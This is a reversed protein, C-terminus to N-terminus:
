INVEFETLLKKCEKVRDILFGKDANPVEFRIININKYYGFDPLYPLEENDAFAIWKYRHQDPGDYHNAMEKIAELESEYPCYVILEAYRSDTLISNSVLQWYYKEGDKHNERVQNILFNGDDCLSNFDTKYLPDVLQCFSKLTIPCKIDVVTRGEDFKNADPSGSWCDIEPHLVSENSVLQYEIGLSEFVRKEILSGWTVPRANSESDISRGLRREWNCEEIYTLAPAGLTGKVKGNKTLAVIESSTFNGVRVKNKLITEM